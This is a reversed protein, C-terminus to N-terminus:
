EKYIKATQRISKTQLIKNLEEEREYEILLCATRTKIAVYDVYHPPRFYDVGIIKRKISKEQLNFELYNDIEIKGYDKIAIIGTVVLGDKAKFVDEIDIVITNGM